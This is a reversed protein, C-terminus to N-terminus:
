TMSQVTYIYSLNYTTLEWVKLHFNFQLICRNPINQIVDSQRHFTTTNKSKCTTGIRARLEHFMKAAQWQLAVLSWLLFINLGWSSLFNSLQNHAECADCLKWKPSYSYPWLYSWSCRHLLFVQLDQWGKQYGIRKCFVRQRLKIKLSVLCLKRGYSIFWTYQNAPDQETASAHCNTNTWLESNIVRFEVQKIRVKITM